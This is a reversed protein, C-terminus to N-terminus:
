LSEAESSIVIKRAVCKQRPDSPDKQMGTRLVPAYWHCCLQRIVFSDLLSITKIDQRDCNGYQTGHANKEQDVRTQPM